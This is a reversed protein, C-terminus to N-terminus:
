APSGKIPRLTRIRVVWTTYSPCQLHSTSLLGTVLETHAISIWYSGGDDAAQITVCFFLPQGWQPLRGQKTPLRVIVNHPQPSQHGLRFNYRMKEGKKATGTDKTDNESKGLAVAARPRPRPMTQEGGISASPGKKLQAKRLEPNCVFLEKWSPTM